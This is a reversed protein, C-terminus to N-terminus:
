QLVKSLRIGRSLVSISRSSCSLIYRHVRVQFALDGPQEAEFPFLAIAQDAPMRAATAHLGGGAVALATRLNSITREAVGREESDYLLPAIPAGFAEAVASIWIQREAMDDARLLLANRGGRGASKGDTQEDEEPRPMELLFEVDSDDRVHWIPRQSEARHSSANNGDPPLLHVRGKWYVYHPVIDGGHGPAASGAPATPAQSYYNMEGDSHLVFWRRKWNRRGGKRFHRDKQLVNQKVFTDGGKKELWGFCVVARPAKLPASARPFVHNCEAWRTWSEFPWSQQESYILTDDGITGAAALEHATAADVEDSTKIGDSSYYLSSCTRQQPLGVPGAAAASSLGSEREGVGFCFSCGGWPTWDDFEFAPQESYILTTSEITGAEVLALADAISLLRDPDGAYYLTSCTAHTSSTAPSGAGTAESMATPAFCQHCDAWRTWTEFPFGPQESFILTDDVIVGANALERGEAASVEASQSEGDTSYVLSACQPRPIPASSPAHDDSPLAFGFTACCEAWTTWGDHVAFADDESFILTHHTITQDALLTPLDLSVSLRESEEAGDASYYFTSISGCASM